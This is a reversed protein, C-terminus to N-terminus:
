VNNTSIKDDYGEFWDYKIRPRSIGSAMLGDGLGEVFSQSGAIYIVREGLDLVDSKLEDVTVRTNSHDIIQLTKDALEATNLEDVFPRHDSKGAYILVSNLPQKKHQSDAIISRFPTIGIGGALFLAKVSIGLTENAASLGRKPETASLVTQRVSELTFDGGLQDAEVSDGRTLRKLKQKFESPGDLTTIQIYEEHPASAITFLREAGSPPIGSLTINIYQGAQWSLLKESTFFYSYVEGVEHQRHDFTLKM